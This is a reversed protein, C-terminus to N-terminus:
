DINPLEVSLSHINPGHSDGQVAEKKATHGKLTSVDCTEVLGDDRVLSSKKKGDCRENQGFKEKEAPHFKRLLDVGVELVKNFSHQVLVGLLPDCNWFDPDM